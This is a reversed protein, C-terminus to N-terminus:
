FLVKMVNTVNKLVKANKVFNVVLKKIIINYIFLIIIFFVKVFLCKKMIFTICSVIM